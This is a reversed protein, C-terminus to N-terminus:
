KSPLKLSPASATSAAPKKQRPADDSTQPPASAVASMFPPQSAVGPSEKGSAKCGALAGPLICLIAAIRLIMKSSSTM